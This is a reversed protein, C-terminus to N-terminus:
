KWCKTIIATNTTSGAAGKVTRENITLDGCGDDAQSGQATAQIVYTTTTPFNTAFGFTYNSAQTTACGVSPLTTTSNYTLSSTYRREMQQAIELLCGAAAGRRTTQIQSQYSPLAVAAIIAVIAVVIMLEILTFGEIQDQKM